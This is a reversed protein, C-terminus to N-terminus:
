NVRRYDRDDWNRYDTLFHGKVFSAHGDLFLANAGDGHRKPDVRMTRGVRVHTTTWVDYWLATWFDNKSGMPYARSTYYDTEDVAYCSLYITDTPFKYITMRTMLKIGAYRGPSSFRMGNNVYHINHGDSKRAPDRFYPAREYLDGLPKEWTAIPDVLPRLARPWSMHGLHTAERPNWQQFTDAYMVVAMGLQRQNSLCVAGQGAARAAGLAPLLIGILLAIIAIVVLLEILTFGIRSTTRTPM